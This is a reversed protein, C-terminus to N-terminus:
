GYFTRNEGRLPIQNGDQLFSTKLNWNCISEQYCNVCCSSMNRVQNVNKRHFIFKDSNWIEFFSKTMDLSCLTESTTMCPRIMGDAGVFLDRWPISCDRHSVTDTSDQRSINPLKLEVELRKSLEEAERFVRQVEHEMGWVTEKILEETFATFYVVKVRNVGLQQALTICPLLEHLNSKMLCYIFSMHPWQSRINKKRSGISKIYNAIKELDSGTRLYNNTKASAGNISIAILDVHYKFITDELEGLLMGNTCFYKRVPTQDLLKLMKSFDPHITPEGMGMLTVEEVIHFLDKFWLFQNLTLQSSPFKTYNRRCMVCKINCSNTLEFVIRRPYSQLITKGMCLEIKNIRTNNEQTATLPKSHFLEQSAFKNQLSDNDKNKIKVCGLTNR